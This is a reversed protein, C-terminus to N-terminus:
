TGDAEKLYAALNAATEANIGKVEAIEEPTAKRLAELTGFHRLLEQAKAEGVGKVKTLSSQKVTKRRRVDM